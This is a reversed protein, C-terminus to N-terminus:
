FCKSLFNGSSNRVFERSAPPGEVDDEKVACDYLERLRIPHFNSSNLPTGIGRLTKDWPWCTEASPSSEYLMGTGNSSRRVYACVEVITPDTWEKQPPPPPPSRPM